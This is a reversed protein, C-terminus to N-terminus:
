ITHDGDVFRDGPFDLSRGIRGQRSSGAVETSSSGHLGNPSADRVSRDAARDDMPWHGVLAKMGAPLEAARTVPGSLVFLAALPIM